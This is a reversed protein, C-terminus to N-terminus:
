GAPAAHQIDMGTEHELHLVPMAIHEGLIGAEFRNADEAGGQLEPGFELPRRIQMFGVRLRRDLRVVSGRAAAERRMDRSRTWTYRNHLGPALQPSNGAM